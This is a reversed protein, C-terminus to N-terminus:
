NRVGLCEMVLERVRTRPGVSEVKPDLGYCQFKHLSSSFDPRLLNSREGKNNFDFLIGTVNRIKKITYKAFKIM